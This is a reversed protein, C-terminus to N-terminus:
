VAEPIESVTVNGITDGHATRALRGFSDNPDLKLKQCQTDKLIGEALLGAFFPFLSPSHYPEARKPLALCVPRTGAAALYAPLYTFRFGDSVEELLGAPIGNCFVQAKRNM